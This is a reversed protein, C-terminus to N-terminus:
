RAGEGLPAVKFLRLGEIETAWSAYLWQGDTLLFPHDSSDQTAAVRLPSSWSRGGDPSTMVYLEDHKGSFEKWTLFVRKGVALVSPHGAQQDANGFTMPASFTQGGDESRAYFIGQRAKGDTFWTVHQVGSESISIWPGHHPCGELDWQDESLRVVKGPSGDANLKMVAHDRISPEFVHRWVIVPRDDPGIDMAVRCCECSHDAGNVNAHFSAGRDDSIAFYMASGRYPTKTKQATFLDRKDLWAMFIRGDQGVKLAEFRQSSSVAEDSVPIPASFTKGGDLSRSFYVVGTFKREGKAIFSVYLDGNPAAAVKPRNEGNKEVPLPTVTVRASSSISVGGDNSKAVYVHEGQTWAVWLHGQADFTSTPVEACLLSPQADPLLCQAPRATDTNSRGAHDAHQANAIGGGGMLAATTVITCCLKKM